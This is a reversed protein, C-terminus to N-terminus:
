GIDESDQINLLYKTILYFVDNSVSFLKWQVYLLSIYSKLYFINLSRAGSVIRILLLSYLVGAFTIWITNIEFISNIEYMSIREVMFYKFTVM